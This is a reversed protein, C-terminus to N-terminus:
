NINVPLYDNWPAWVSTRSAPADRVAQMLAKMASERELEHQQINASIRAEARLKAKAVFAKYLKVHLDRFEKDSDKIAAEIKEFEAVVGGGADSERAQEVSKFTETIKWGSILHVNRVKDKECEFVAQLQDNDFLCRLGRQPCDRFYRKTGDENWSILASRNGHKDYQSCCSVAVDDWFSRSDFHNADQYCSIPDKDPWFAVAYGVQKDRDCGYVVFSGGVNLCSAKLSRSAIDRLLSGATGKTRRVSLADFDASALSTGSPLRVVAAKSAARYPVPPPPPAAERQDGPAPESPPEQSHVVQTAVVTMLCLMLLGIGASSLRPLQANRM